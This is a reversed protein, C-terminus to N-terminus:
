KDRYLNRENEVRQLDLITIKDRDFELLERKRWDQILKNMWKRDVGIMSAMESQNMQLSVEYRVGQEIEHCLQEQEKFLLLLHLFRGPADLRAITEAYETTWRVKQAIQRCLSLALGPINTLHHLGDDRAMELVVCDTMAEASASRTLGDVLGLEGLLHGRSFVNVTTEEGGVSLHFIRVLGQVVVFFQHSIDEQNFITRGKRYRRERFSEAILALDRENIGAFLDVSCLFEIRESQTDAM